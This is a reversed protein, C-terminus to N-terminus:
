HSTHLAVLLGALSRRCVQRRHILLDLLQGVPSTGFSQAQGALAAQQTPTVL